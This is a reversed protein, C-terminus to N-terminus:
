GCPQVFVLRTDDGHRDRSYWHLSRIVQMCLLQNHSPSFSQGCPSSSVAGFQRLIVQRGSWNWHLSREHIGPCKWQEPLASHLSPESSRLQLLNKKEWGLDKLCDWIWM